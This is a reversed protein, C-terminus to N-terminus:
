LMNYQLGIKKFNLRSLYYGTAEINKIGPQSLNWCSNGLASVEDVSLSYESSLLQYDNGPWKGKDGICLCKTSLKKKKAIAVCHAIINLKNSQTQDIVDLSHSSELIQINPINLSIIFQIVSLRVKKWEKKDKVEITIQHPRLEPMVETIFKQKAIQEYILTLTATPPLQKNPFKNDTLPGVDSCNYYGVIIQKWYKQPIAEQLSTRVSQGRGTAIGITIGAELFKILHRILEQDLGKFRNNSSCLTGDYDLVLAGFEASTLRAVFSNYADLWYMQDSESLIDFTPADAKRCIATKVETTIKDSSSYLREYKLHYLKSGFEPVGPRGPDIGQIAGLQNIFHFSKILLEIAAASDTIESEILLVPIQRPLLALTRKALEKEQPSIIAIIASDDVRKDFWHHRGHGFNRFDSLLVNALAAEALKSEIDVAVPQGLGAYLVNFTYNSDVRAIFDALESNFPESLKFNCLQTPTSFVRGIIVFFAILSNTALFGDKGSPIAFDFHSSVSTHSAIKSLPSGSKMCISFIRNPEYGVATKYGFIIDTNKGSASIFLVNSNRLANRAYFLELPTVAKAMLGMQQYLNAAYHCASLSGGSGVIFLPLHTNQFIQNQLSEIDVEFAWKLTETIKDIESSFPKGM